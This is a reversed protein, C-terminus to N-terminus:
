ALASGLKGSVYRVVPIVRDYRMRVPGIVGLGCRLPAAGVPEAVVACRAVGPDGLEEGIVVRTAGSTLVKDLLALMREEGSDRYDYFWGDQQKDLLRLFGHQTYYAGTEKDAYSAQALGYHQQIDALQKIVLPEQANPRDEILWTQLFTNNALQQAANMLNNIEHDVQDRIQMTLSPMESNLMRQEVIEKASKQSLLGVLATSLLVALAVTFLIKQKISITNLKM